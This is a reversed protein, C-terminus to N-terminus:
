RIVPNGSVLGIWVGLYRRDGGPADSPRFGSESAVRLRVVGDAPVRVPFLRQEGPQLAVPHVEAASQLQVDNPANGNRLMLELSPVGAGAAIVVETARGGQVWFGDPEVYAAQDLFFVDISGYRVVSLAEAPAGRRIALPAIEITGGVQRLAQDPEITVAAVDVPVTVVFAQRSLPLVTLTRWPREARGIRLALEGQRPRTSVVRLEYTGAPLGRVAGWVAAGPPATEGPRIRMIGALDAIARVSMPAIAFIRRGARQSDLVALQSRIPEPGAVRNLWWGIQVLSMLGIAACWTVVVPASTRRVLLRGIAAVAAVLALWSGVHVFFPVETSLDEPSLKWFFGPWGRALDVVPGLWELWLAAPGRVNWALAGRDVGVVVGTIALSVALLSVLAARGANGARSWM